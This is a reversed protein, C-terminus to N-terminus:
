SREVEPKSAVVLLRWSFAACLPRIAKVSALGRELRSLARMVRPSGSIPSRMYSGSLPYALFDHVSTEIENFGAARLSTQVRAATFEEKHALDAPSEYRDSNIVLKRLVTTVMTATPEYMVLV